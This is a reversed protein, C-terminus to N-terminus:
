KGEGEKRRRLITNLFGIFIINFLSSLCIFGFIGSMLINLITNQNSTQVVGNIITQVEWSLGYKLASSLAHFLSVLFMLGSFVINIKNMRTIDRSRMILKDGLEIVLPNNKTRFVKDSFEPILFCGAFIM